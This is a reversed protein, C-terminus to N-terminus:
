KYTKNNKFEVIAEHTNMKQGDKFATIFANPFKDLISKRMRVIENYDNSAGYTYKYLNGEKTIELDLGKFSKDGKKLCTASSMVQVKFVPRSEVVKVTQSNGGDANKQQPKVTETKSESGTGGTSRSEQVSADPVTENNKTDTKSETSEKVPVIKELSSVKGTHIKKYRVIANYICQALIERGRDSMLFQEETPTSIYGVELLVSPMYTLRLVALNAQLVGMDLRGGNRVMEDQALKAFNVSEKMDRDQMLEFMIDSESSNPNSLSYKQEGNEEYQIVSNERKEVELNTEATRLTLTYSQVGRAKRANKPLANTHISVFLDAKAKNAIRARRDLEVFVDTKRTYIVKVDPCKSELLKGIGLTIALNIDKERNRSTSGIAGPDKGGHGADLVVTFHSDDALAACSCFVSAVLFLLLRLQSKGM